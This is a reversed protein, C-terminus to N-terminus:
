VKLGNLYLTVIEKALQVPEKQDTFLYTLTLREISGVLSESVTKMDIDKRFYGDRQESLLNETIQEVLQKKILEAESSYYFGIKTLNPHDYFFQLIASLGITIRDPLLTPDLGTELRSEKTLESLKHRFTQILETFIAEKSDFYLYFTPQTVGAKKVITSVKTDYYGYTAFEEAAILVLNARSEAGNSGEKRGKKGM